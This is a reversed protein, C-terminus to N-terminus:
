DTSSCTGSVESPSGHHPSPSPSLGWRKDDDWTSMDDEPDEDDCDGDAGDVGGTGNCEGDDEDEDEDENRM